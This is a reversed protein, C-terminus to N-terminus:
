WIRVHYTYFRHFRPTLALAALALRLAAVGVIVVIREHGYGAEFKLFTATGGTMEARM